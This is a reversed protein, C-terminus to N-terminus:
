WNQVAAKATTRREDTTVVFVQPRQAIGIRAVGRPQKPYCPSGAARPWRAAAPFQERVRHLARSATVKHGARSKQNDGASDDFCIIAVRIV